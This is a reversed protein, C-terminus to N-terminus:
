LKRRGTKANGARERRERLAQTLGAVDPHHMLRCNELLTRERAASQQTSPSEALEVLERILLAMADVHKRNRDAGVSVGLERCAGCFAIKREDIPPEDRRALEGAFTSLAHQAEETVEVSGGCSSSRCRWQDVAQPPTWSYVGVGRTRASDHVSSDRVRLDAAVEPDIDDM